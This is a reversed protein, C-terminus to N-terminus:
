PWRTPDIGPVDWFPRLGERMADARTIGIDKLMREDLSLLQRRQQALEQWRLLALVLRAGVSRLTRAPRLTRHQRLDPEMRRAYSMM